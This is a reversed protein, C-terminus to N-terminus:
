LTAALLWHDEMTSRKGASLLYFADRGAYYYSSALAKGEEGAEMAWALQIRIGLLSNTATCITRRKLVEFDWGEVDILLVDIRNRLLGQSQLFKDLRTTPV